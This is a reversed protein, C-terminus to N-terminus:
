LSRNKQQLLREQQIREALFLKMLSQYPVDRSNALIKLDDLLHKPFRVSVSQTSPKVQSFDMKVEQFSDLFDLFSHSSWFKREEDENKFKPIHKKIKSM